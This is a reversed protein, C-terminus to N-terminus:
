LDPSTYNLSDYKAELREVFRDVQIRFEPEKALTTDITTVLDYFAASHNDNKVKQEAFGYFEYYSTFGTTIGLCCIGFITAGIPHYIGLIGVGITSVAPVLISPIGIRTHWSKHEAGKAKHAEARKIFEERWKIVLATNKATWGEEPRKDIANSDVSNEEM